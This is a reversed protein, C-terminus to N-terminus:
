GPISDGGLCFATLVSKPHVLPAYKSSLPFSNLLPAQNMCHGPSLSAPSIVVMERSCNWLGTTVKRVFFIRFGRCRSQEGSVVIGWPEGNPLTGATNLADTHQAQIGRIYDKSGLSFGSGLETVRKERPQPRPWSGKTTRRSLIIYTVVRYIYLGVSITDRTKPGFLTFFLSVPSPLCVLVSKPGSCAGTDQPSLLGRDASGSLSPTM